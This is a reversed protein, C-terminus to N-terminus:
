LRRGCGGCYRDRDNIRYGCNSCYTRKTVKGQIVNIEEDYHAKIGVIKLQLVTAQLEVDLNSYTFSQNSNKGEITAGPQTNSVNTSCYSVSNYTVDSCKMGGRGFSSPGDLADGVYWMGDNNEKFPYQPQVYHRWDWDIKIDKKKALRFEVRIIGNDLSTPDDVDPHDLAVFKFRKGNSMSNTIFRELDVTAGAGVIIDGFNSVSTGDITIRATCDRDNKNKLRIKYESGFPIAVVKSGRNGSEKVPYGDHIISLIFKDKYM